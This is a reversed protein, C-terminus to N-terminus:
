NKKKPTPQPEVIGEGELMGIQKGVEHMAQTLAVIQDDVKDLHEQTRSDVQERGGGVAGQAMAMMQGPSTLAFECRWGATQCTLTFFTTAILKCLLIISVPWGLLEATIRAWVIGNYVRKNQPEM